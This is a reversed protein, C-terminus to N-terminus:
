RFAQEVAMWPSHVGPLRAPSVTPRSLRVVPRRCDLAVLEAHRIARNRHVWAHRAGWPRSRAETSSQRRRLRFRAETTSSKLPASRRLCRDAGPGFMGRRCAACRRPRIDAAATPRGLRVMRVLVPHRRDDHLLDLWRGVNGGDCLSGRALDGGSAGDHQGSASYRVGCSSISDPMPIALEGPFARIAGDRGAPPPRRAGPGGV